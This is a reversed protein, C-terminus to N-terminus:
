YIKEFVTQAQGVYFQYIRILNFHLESRILGQQNKINLYHTMIIRLAPPSFILPVAVNEARLPQGQLHMGAQTPVQLHLM